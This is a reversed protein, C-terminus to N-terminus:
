NAVLGGFETPGPLAALLGVLARERRLLRAGLDLRASVDACALLRQRDGTDLVMLEALRYSLEGPDAPVATEAAGRPLLSLYEVLGARVKDAKWALLDPDQAPETLWSVRGTLYPTAAGEVFGDLRFRRAGRTLIQFTGDGVADVRYVRAVCGIGYLDAVSDPGVEHGSRIAVVGFEPDRDPAELLDHLLRVYRPEFIRLPLRGGPVLVTSLPFIPLAEM